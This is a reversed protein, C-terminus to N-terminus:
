AAVAKALSLLFKNAGDKSDFGDKIVACDTLRVVGWKAHPGRWKTGFGGAVTKPLDDADLKIFDTMPVVSVEPGNVCLVMLVVAWALDERLCLIIDTSKLARAHHTWFTPAFLAEKQTEPQIKALLPRIGSELASLAGNGLKPALAKVETTESM